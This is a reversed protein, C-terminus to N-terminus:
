HLTHGSHEADSEIRFFGAGASGRQIEESTASRAHHSTLELDLGIGALPHNGDLIIHEPYIDTVIYLAEQPMASSCGPPMAHGDFVM